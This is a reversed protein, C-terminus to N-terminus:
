SFSLRPNTLYVLWFMLLSLLFSIFQVEYFNLVKTSWFINDILYFFFFFVRCFPLFNKAFWIRNLSKYGIVHLFAVWFYFSLYDATSIFLTCLYFNRWFCLVCIVLLCLFLPEGDNGDSFYLYFGCQFTVKCGCSHSCDFLGITVRSSLSLTSGEWM